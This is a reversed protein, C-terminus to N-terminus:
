AKLPCVRLDERKISDESIARGSQGQKAPAPIGKKSQEAEPQVRNSERRSESKFVGFV